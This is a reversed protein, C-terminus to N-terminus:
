ASRFCIGTGGGPFFPFLSATRQHPGRKWAPLRICTEIHCGCEGAGRIESVVGRRCHSKEPNRTEGNRLSSGGRVPRISRREAGPPFPNGAPLSPPYSLSPNRFPSPSFFSSLSLPPLHIDPNESTEDRSRRTTPKEQTTHHSFSFGKSSLNKGERARRKGFRKPCGNEQLFRRIQM